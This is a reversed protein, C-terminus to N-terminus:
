DKVGVQLGRMWGEVGGGERGSGRGASPSCSSVESSPEM